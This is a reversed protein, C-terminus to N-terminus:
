CLLHMCLQAISFDQQLFGKECEKVLRYNTEDFSAHSDSVTILNELLFRSHPTKNLPIIDHGVMSFLFIVYMMMNSWIIKDGLSPIALGQSIDCFVHLLLLAHVYM